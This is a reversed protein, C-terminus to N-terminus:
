SKPLQRWRGKAGGCSQTLIWAHGRRFAFREVFLRGEKSCRLSLRQTTPKQTPVGRVLAIQRPTTRALGTRRHRTLRTGISQAAPAPERLRQHM